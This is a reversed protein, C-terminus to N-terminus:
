EWRLWLHFRFIVSLRRRVCGVSNRPALAGSTHGMPVKLPRRSQVVLARRPTMTGPARVVFNTILVLLQSSPCPLASPRGSRHSTRAWRRRAVRRARGRRRADGEGRGDGHSSLAVSTEVHDPTLVDLHRRAPCELRFSRSGLMPTRHSERSDDRRQPRRMPGHEHPKQCATVPAGAAPCQNLQHVSWNNLPLPRAFCGASSARPQALM